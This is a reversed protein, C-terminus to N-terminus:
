ESRTTVGFLWSEGGPRTPYKKAGVARAADRLAPDDIKALTVPYLNGQIRLTAKGDELAARHWTKGPPYEVAAPVYAKGDSVILWVTRSRDQSALQLEVEPVEAAFSWDDIAEAVPTGSALPGGPIPGLPGDHYRAGFFTLGILLAIVAVIRILWRFVIM